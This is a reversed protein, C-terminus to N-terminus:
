REEKGRRPTPPASLFHFPFKQNQNAAETKSFLLIQIKVSKTTRKETRAAFRPAGLEIASPRM